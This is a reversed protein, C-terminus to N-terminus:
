ILIKNLISKEINKEIKVSVCPLLVSVPRNTNWRNSELSCQRMSVLFCKLAQLEEKM